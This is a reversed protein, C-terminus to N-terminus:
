SKWLSIVDEVTIAKKDINRAIRNAATTYFSNGKFFERTPKETIVQGNFIMACRDSHQACFEIDHSVLVITRGRAKLRKLIAAFKDKYYNDMGKTPEDLLLIEPDLLLIKGFALRQQEGGSLDYPHSDRLGELEVLKLVEEVKEKKLSEKISRTKVIEYLDDWVRSKLFLSQPDQPLVGLNNSYREMYDIKDLDRGGLLVRGRYPKVLGAMLKLSTSKGTGNGGLISLFEGKKVSLSFDELINKEKRKYKFWVNDVLIINEEGVEEKGIELQKVPKKEALSEVLKRGQNVTIPMKEFELGWGIQMASTMSKFIPHDKQGLVQGVKEPSDDIILQGQDLVILRDSLPIIEELRHETLIITTGLDDNIKKLTAIFDTAAIPDLQSTPEDLILVEPQMAMVAALNIIQKQGGSLDKVDLDFLDQIGFYSAMEAVRLKITKSDYGLSELGFALEHWVKDTVLQNDPNQLVYGIESVEQRDELSDIPRGKYLIEGSRQGFPALSPKLQRILSSKGSGSKGCISVFEGSDVRLSIGNLSNDQGLPYKFKLDSVRYIEM